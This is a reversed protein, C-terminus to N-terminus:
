SLILLALILKLMHVIIDTTVLNEVVLASSQLVVVMVWVVRGDGM